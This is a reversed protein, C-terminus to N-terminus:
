EGSRESSIIAFVELATVVCGRKLREEGCNLPPPDAGPKYPFIESSCPHCPPNGGGESKEGIAFLPPPPSPPKPGGGEGRLSPIGSGGRRAEVGRRALCGKKGGWGDGVVGWCEPCQGRLGRLALAGCGLHLLNLLALKELHQSATHELWRIGEYLGFGPILHFLDRNKETM